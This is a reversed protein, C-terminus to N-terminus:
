MRTFSYSQISAAHHVQVHCQMCHLNGMHFKRIHQHTTHTCTHAYTHARVHMRWFSPSTLLFFYHGSAHLKSRPDLYIPVQKSCSLLSLKWQQTQSQTPVQCRGQEHKGQNTRKQKHMHVMLGWYVTCWQQKM